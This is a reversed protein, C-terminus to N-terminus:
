LGLVNLMHTVNYDLDSQLDFMEPGQEQLAQILLARSNFATIPSVPCDELTPCPYFEGQGQHLRAQTDMEM